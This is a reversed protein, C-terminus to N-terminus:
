DETHAGRIGESESGNCREQDRDADEGRDHRGIAGRADLGDVGEAVLSNSFRGAVSRPSQSDRWKTATRNELTSRPQTPQARRRNTAFQITVRCPKACGPRKAGRLM